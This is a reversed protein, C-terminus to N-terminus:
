NAGMKNLDMLDIRNKHLDNMIVANDNKRRTTLQRSTNCIFSHTRGDFLQLGHQQVTDFQVPLNVVKNVHHFLDCFLDSWGPVM